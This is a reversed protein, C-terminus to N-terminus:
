ADAAPLEVVFTSGKGAGESKVTATGGHAEVLGKVITLGLGLGGDTRASPQPEQVFADFVRTMM